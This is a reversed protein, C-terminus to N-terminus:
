VYFFVDFKLLGKLFSCEVDTLTIFYFAVVM